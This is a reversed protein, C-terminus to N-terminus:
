DGARGALVCERVDFLVLRVEDEEVDDQGIHVAELDALLDAFEGVHGHDHEAGTVGFHVLDAAQLHAGVVVDRLGEAM